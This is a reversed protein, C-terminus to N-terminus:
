AVSPAQKFFESYHRKVEDPSSFAEKAKGLVITTGDNPNSIVARYGDHFQRVSWLDKSPQFDLPKWGQAAIIDIWVSAVIKPVDTPLQYKQLMDIQKPTLGGEKYAKKLQGILKGAQGATMGDVNYGRDTLFKRQDPTPPNTIKPTPPANANPVVDVVKGTVVGRVHERGQSLKERRQLEAEEQEMLKAMDVPEDSKRARAIANRRAQLSVVIGDDVDSSNMVDYKSSSSTVDYIVFHPKSSKAIAELREAANACRDIVGPVPRAGRGLVQTYPDISGFPRANFISETNPADFGEALAMVTVLRNLEGAKYAEIRQKRAEKSCLKRDGVVYAVREGPFRNLISTFLIATEVGPLFVLTQGKVFQHCAAALKHITEPEDAYIKQLKEESYEGNQGMAESFDIEDLGVFKQLPRVLWGQKIADRMRMRFPEDIFMSKLSKKDSRNPTATVGLVSASAFYQIITVYSKALARHAEDIVILRFTDPEYAHMRGVMSQWSCVVIDPRRDFLKAGETMCRREGMEVGVTLGPCMSVVRDHMQDILEEVHAMILVRGHEAVWRKTLEGVVTTKGTGTPMVVLASGNLLLSWHASEVANEQYDRLKVM